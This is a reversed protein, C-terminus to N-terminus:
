HSLADMIEPTCRYKATDLLQSGDLTTVDPDAGISRLYVIIAKLGAAAQPIGCYNVAVVIPLPPTGQMQPYRVPLQVNGSNVLRKVAAIDGKAMAAYLSAGDAGKGAPREVGGPAVQKIAASAPSSAGRSDRERWAPEIRNLAAEAAQVVRPDANMRQGRVTSAAPAASDWMSELSGLLVVKADVYTNSALWGAILAARQKDDSVIYSADNRCAKFYDDVDHTKLIPTCVQEWHKRAVGHVRASSDHRSTDAADALIEIARVRDAADATADNALAALEPLGHVSRGAADSLASLAIRRMNHDALLRAAKPAWRELSAADRQDGILDWARERTSPYASETYRLLSDTWAPPKPEFAHLQKLLFPTAPPSVELTRQLPEILGRDKTAVLYELAREALKVNDDSGGREEAEVADVYYDIMYPLLPPAPDIGILGRAALFGVYGRVGSSLVRRRAAALETEPVEMTALAGAANMAVAADADDLAARLAPLTSSFADPKQTAQQWLAEAALRRVVADSNTLHKALVPATQAAFDPGLQTAADIQAAPAGRELDRLASKNQKALFKEAFDGADVHHACLSLCSALLSRVLM